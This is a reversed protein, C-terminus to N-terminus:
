PGSPAFHDYGGVAEVGDVSVGAGPMVEGVVRVPAGAREAARVVADHNTPPATFLLEYDDGGRLAAERACALGLFETLADTLPLHEGALSLAVGSAAAIHGADALLGDSVDIAATVLGALECGLSVRPEPYFLRRVLAGTAVDDSGNQWAQLGAAAAGLDGSVWVQDGVCAGSRRMVVAAFGSAQLTVSLPGRTTDGGILAVGHQAALRAFGNAFGALWDEDRAPLTLALLAWAPVAGMAALDSLNVALARHGVAEAPADSPFHVDAVLTDIVQILGGDAPPAVVAGDDGVGLEVDRRAVADRFYRDILEFEGPEAAVTM